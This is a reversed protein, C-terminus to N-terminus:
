EEIAPAEIGAKDDKQARAREDPELKGNGNMDYKKLWRADQERLEQKTIKQAEVETLRFPTTWQGTFRIRFALVKKDQITFAQNPDTLEDVKEFHTGDESIELIASGPLEEDNDNTKPKDALPDGLTLTLTSIRELPKTFFVTVQDGQKPPRATAFCTEPHDDFACLGPCDPDIGTSAQVERVPLTPVLAQKAPPPVTFKCPPAEVPLPLACDVIATFDGSLAAPVRWLHQDDVSSEDTENSEFKSTRVVTGQADLIKVTPIVNSGNAATIEGLEVGTDSVMKFKLSVLRVPGIIECDSELSMNIRQPVPFVTKAGDRIEFSSHADDMILDCGAQGSGAIRFEAIRYKGAKLPIPPQGDVIPFWNGGGSIRASIRLNAPIELTGAGPDPLPVATLDQTAADVQLALWHGDLCFPIGLCGILRRGQFGNNDLDIAFIDGAKKGSPQDPYNKQALAAADALTGNGNDDAVAIRYAKGNIELTTSAFPIFTASVYPRDQNAKGLKGSVNGNVLCPITRTATKIQIIGSFERVDKSGDAAPRLKLGEVNKFTGTHGADFRLVDFKAGPVSRDIACWLTEIDLEENETATTLPLIMAKPEVTGTPAPGEPEDQVFFSLSNGFGSRLFLEPPVPTTSELKAAQCPLASGAIAGALLMPLIPKM